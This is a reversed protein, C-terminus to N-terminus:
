AADKRLLWGLERCGLVRAATAYVLMGTGCAALLAGAQQAWSTGVPFAAVVLWVAGGMAVAAVATKAWAAATERDLAATGLKARSLLLLVLCQAIASISTSWALGAEALWWILVLNLGLNFGVMTLAVRMPTRMDGRAYFARTLVHNLSYAWVAPAFGALVAASRDLSAASFGHEGISFLVATLDHRVLYLGLSAPLGIFLSLRLGRRLTGAFEAPQDAHRSLLPFVATAVAIGFVGLPFQYLRQTFGIISASSEDMPCPRGFMMPGVWVPWASLLTDIFTNIQLTGLGILVPVFRGALRVARERQGGGRFDRTWRAHRRLLRLFWLCQTLGSLVTVGGLVYAAPAGGQQDTWLYYLGAAVIFGNLIIPGSSAPGFRGHVQLMGSLLAAACVLPMFPLMVMMLHLSLVRNEDGPAALLIILLVLEIAATLAGTAVLLGTVILSAFRDAEERSHQLTRTYEPIFAASLAGEGFLRRFMNPVAFAALFASSVPGAGRFVYVLMLDRLLGGVRSLLTVSSVTRVARGLAPAPLPVTNPQATM